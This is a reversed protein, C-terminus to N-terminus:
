GRGVCFEHTKVDLIKIEVGFHLAVFVYAHRNVDDGLFDDVLVVEQREDVIGVNVDLDVFAHITERLGADDGVVLPSLVECFEAVDGSLVCWAKPLVLGPRHLEREDDVVKADVVDDWFVCAM